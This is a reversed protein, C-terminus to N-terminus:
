HKPFLSTAGRLGAQLVQEPTLQGSISFPVEVNLSEGGLHASGHLRYPLPKAGLAYPALLAVNTWRMSLQAPIAVNGEAPITFAPTANGQGLESGDELEIVANVASASIPFGNPNHVKLVVALGVGDPSISSLQVSEPTLEVPKPKFCAVALLACPVFTLYRLNTRQQM